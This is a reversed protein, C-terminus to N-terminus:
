LHIPIPAKLIDEVTLMRVHRLIPPVNDINKPKDNVLLIPAYGMSDFLKYLIYVNQFLGNVFLSNDHITATALLIVKRGQIPQWPIALTRCSDSPGKTCSNMGALSDM